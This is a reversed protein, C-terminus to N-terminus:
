RQISLVNAETKIRKGLVHIENVIIYTEGNEVFSPHNGRSILVMDGEAVQACQDSVAVVPLFKDMKELEEKIMKESKIVGLPTKEEIKPLRAVIDKNFPKFNIESM